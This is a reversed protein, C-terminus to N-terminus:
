TSPAALKQEIGNLREIKLELQRVLSHKPDLKKLHQAAKLIVQIETGWDLQQQAENLAVGFSWSSPQRM